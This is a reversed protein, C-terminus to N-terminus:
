RAQHKSKVINREWSSPRRWVPRGWVGRRRLPAPKEHMKPQFAAYLNTDQETGDVFDAHSFRMNIGLLLANTAIYFLTARADYPRQPWGLGPLMRNCPSVWHIHSRNISDYRTVDDNAIATGLHFIGLLCVLFTMKDHQM